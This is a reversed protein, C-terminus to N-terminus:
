KGKPIRIRKEQGTSKQRRKMRGMAKPPREGLAAMTILRNTRRRSSSRRKASPKASSLSGVAKSKRLVGPKEARCGPPAWSHLSSSLLPPRPVPPLQGPLAGTLSFPYYPTEVTTFKEVLFERSQGCKAINLFPLPFISPTLGSDDFTM